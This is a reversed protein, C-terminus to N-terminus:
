VIIIGRVQMTEEAIKFGEIGLFMASFQVSGTFSVVETLVLFAILNLM